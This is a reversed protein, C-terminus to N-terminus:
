ATALKPHEFEPLTQTRSLTDRVATQTVAALQRRDRIASSEIPDLVHVELVLGRTRATRRLSTVLTEDGIFAPATTDRGDQLRYRLVFPIVPVDADIAAQFMAPRFRGNALGCWTTGEPCVNVLSGGRLAQRLEEVAIPLSRLNERDLYVTRAASALKGIIPWHALEKKAQARMPQVANIAVADLWSIHNSAVLAGRGDEAYERLWHAGHVELRVGFSRLILRFWWRVATEQRRKSYLPMLLALFPGSLLVAVATVLRWVRRFINVTPTQGAMCGTGCPSEPQWLHGRV